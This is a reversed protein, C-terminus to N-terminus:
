LRSGALDCQGLIGPRCPSNPRRTRASRDDRAASKESLIPRFAVSRACQSLSLRKAPAIESSLPPSELQGLQTDLIVVSTM